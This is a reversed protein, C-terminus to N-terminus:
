ALAAKLAGMALEMKERFTVGDNGIVTLAPHGEWKSRILGDAEIAREPSEYRYGNTERGYHAEAGDAATVLFIAADYSALASAPTLGEEALAAAYDADSMYAAVDPLGRDCLVLVDGDGGMARAAAMCARENAAQIRAIAREFDVFPLRGDPPLGAAMALTAAEPVCVATVGLMPATRRVQSLFTTKGGCGGGTVAVKIVRKGMIIGGFSLLTPM